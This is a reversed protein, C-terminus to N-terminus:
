TERLLRKSVEKIKPYGALSSVDKDSDGKVTSDIFYLIM